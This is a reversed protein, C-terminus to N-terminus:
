VMFDRMRVPLRKAGWRGAQGAFIGACVTGCSQCRGESTLHWATLYYGSRGIVLHGCHHCFTSNGQEDHVNGIYAYRIGNKRAIHRALMLTHISTSPRDLMKWAPHFATFHIPTDVGLHTVIWQTMQELEQESDNEGPILLTTLELWVTTKQKLYILTELVPQLHGGTWKHYFHESFAKLDVNAADMHRFFEERPTEQIYGATVAVSRIGLQHCAQAVDLAYEHFIVPDNYTYAISQCKLQHAARAIIHPPAHDSLIDMEQSKSVDWNQCFKCTLNCGATGFSLIPTGPLFHNLPKKEIPDVCFGSSRGYTTLMIQHHHRIRVFCLGQQGEKLCCARPCLDCQIRGDELFHWYRTPFFSQESAM